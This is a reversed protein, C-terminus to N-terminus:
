LSCLLKKMIQIKKHKMNNTKCLRSIVFYLSSFDFDKSFKIFYQKTPNTLSEPIDFDSLNLDKDYVGLKNDNVTPIKYCFSQGFKIIAAPNVYLHNYFLEEYKYYWTYRKFILKKATKCLRFKLERSEYLIGDFEEM